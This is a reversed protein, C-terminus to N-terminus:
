LIGHKEFAAVASSGEELLRRVLKESRAKELAQSFVENAADHPVVCVGDIDGFLFDGPRVRVSAIEISIRFDVV